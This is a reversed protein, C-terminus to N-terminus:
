VSPVVPPNIWVAEPLQAPVPRRSFRGPHARWAATLVRERRALVATADGNHVVEPTLWAIGSHYHEHNYWRFFSRCFERADHLCGFRKPFDPRYKLTRFHSESYPNDNSCYPRNLSRDVGLDSLLGAVTKSTMSSGRDSHLTLEAQQVGHKRCSEEILHSALDASENRALCWGVILRSYIDLLTSSLMVQNINLAEYHPAM